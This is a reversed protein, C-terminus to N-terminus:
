NDIAHNAADMRAEAQRLMDDLTKGPEDPFPGDLPQVALLKDVRFPHFVQRDEWWTALTTIGGWELLGLPRVTAEQRAGAEDEATVHLRLHRTVAERLLPLRTPQASAPPAILSM